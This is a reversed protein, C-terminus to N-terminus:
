IFGSEFSIHKNFVIKRKGVQKLYILIINNFAYFNFFFIGDGIGFVETFYIPCYRSIWVRHIM